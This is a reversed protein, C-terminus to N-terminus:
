EDAVILRQEVSPDPPLNTILLLGRGEPLPVTLELPTSEGPKLTASAGGGAVYSAGTSDRLEFASIPVVLEGDGVNTVTGVIQLGGEARKLERVEVRLRASEVAPEVPRGAGGAALTGLLDRAASQLEAPLAAIDLQPLEFSPNYGVPTPQAAFYESLSPNDPSFLHGRSSIAILLLGAIAGVLWIPVGNSRDDM